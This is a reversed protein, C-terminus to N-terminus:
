HQLCPSLSHARNYVMQAFFQAFTSKYNLELKRNDYNLPSLYYFLTHLGLLSQVDVDFFSDFPPLLLVNMLTMEKLGCQLEPEHLIAECLQMVEDYKRCRYLHLARYCDTVNCQIGFDRRIVDYFSIMNELAYEMLFNIVTNENVVTNM